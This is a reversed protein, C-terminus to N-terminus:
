PKRSKPQPAKPGSTPADLAPAANKTPSPTKKPGTSAKKQGPTTAPTTMGPMGDYHKHM